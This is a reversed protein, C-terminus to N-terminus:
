PLLERYVRETGEIMRELSFDRARKHGHDALTNRLSEDELAEILAESLDETRIRRDGHKDIQLPIKLGTERHQILEDLGDAASAIVCAKCAMAELAVLGFPEILSPVVAIHAAHYLPIVRDIPLWDMFRVNDLGHLTSRLWDDASGNGVFLFVVDRIQESVMRVAGALPGIGKVPEVRGAFLVIREDGIGLSNRTRRVSEASSSEKFKELNTGHYVLRIKGGNDYTEEMFRSMARSIAIVRDSCAFLEANLGAERAYLDLDHIPTKSGHKLIIQYVMVVHNSHMTTVVPISYSHSIDKVASAFQPSHCHILDIRSMGKFADWLMEDLIEPQEEGRPIFIRFVDIGPEIQSSIVRTEGNASPVPHVLFIRHGKEAMGRSLHLLHVAEGGMYTPPYANAVFLINM